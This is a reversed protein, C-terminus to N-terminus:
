KEGGIFFTNGCGSVPSATATAISTFDCNTKIEIGGTQVLLDILKVMRLPIKTTGSEWQSISSQAVGMIQALEVQTLGAEERLKQLDIM